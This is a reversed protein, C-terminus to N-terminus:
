PPPRADGPPARRWGARLLWTHPAPLDVDASPSAFPDRAASALSHKRANERVYVLARRVETPKRLTRAHYRDGLVKGARKMVRNLRKAIRISLGQMARALAESSVAEVVLHVHNGLVSFQVVRVGFRDAAAAISRGVASFCRRSRLGYVHPAMRLTVHVPLTRAFRERPLHAVGARAGNPKRGANKRAGGWTRFRFATQRARSV